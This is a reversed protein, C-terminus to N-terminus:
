GKLVLVEVQVTSVARVSLVTAWQDLKLRQCLNDSCDQVDATFRMRVLDVPSGEIAEEKSISGAM